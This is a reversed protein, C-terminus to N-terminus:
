RKDGGERASAETKARRYMVNAKHSINDANAIIPVSGVAVVTEIAFESPREHLLSAPTNNIVADAANNSFALNDTRLFDVSYMNGIAEAADKYQRGIQGDVFHVRGNHVEYAISHGGGGVYWGHIFGRAGEGQSALSQVAKDITAKSPRSRTQLWLATPDTTNFMTKFTANQFLAEVEANTRGNKFRRDAVVDYGRRRMEYAVSCSTCNVERGALLTHGLWGGRNIKRLDDNIQKDFDSAEFSKKMLQSDLNIGPKINVGGLSKGDLAIKKGGIYRYAGYAAIAGVAVAAGIAVKKEFSIRKDAAAEAERQSMGQERFKAILKDRHTLRKRQVSVGSRGSPSKSSTFGVHRKNHGSIGDGSSGGRTSSIHKKERVTKQSAGLPYPPGNRVGWKMGLIGHHALYLHQEM